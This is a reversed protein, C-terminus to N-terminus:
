LVVVWIDKVHTMLLVWKRLFSFFSLLCAVKTNSVIVTKSNESAIFITEGGSPSTESGIAPGKAAPKAIM